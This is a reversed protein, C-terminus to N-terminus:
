RYRVRPDILGYAMDTVINVIVVILTLVLVIGQILVFDRTYVSQIALQGLGPWGFVTEVVVSGGILQSFQVTIVTIPAMLSNRLVHKYNIHAPPVGKARATRIFDQSIVDLVASRTLRALLATTPLSLAVAPLVLHRWTGFGSTPLIRLYLGFLLIFLISLYFRPIAQGVVILFRILNDVWRGRNLAAVTGLPLSVIVALGLGAAALGFSAAFREGILVAVPKTYRLSQGLDGHLLGQMYRLFQTTVPQDLGWSARLKALAEPTAFDGLYLEAPDGTLRVLFFVFALLIILTPVAQLIRGAIYSVPAGSM